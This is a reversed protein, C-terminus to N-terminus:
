DGEKVVKLGTVGLKKEIEAITMVTEPAPTDQKIIWGDAQMEQLTQYGCSVDYDFKTSYFVLGGATAQVSREDGRDDILIDGVELTDWTKEVRKVEPANCHGGSDFQVVVEGKDNLREAVGTLGIHSIVGACCRVVRVKKGKYVSDFEVQTM